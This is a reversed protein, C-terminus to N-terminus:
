KKIVKRIIKKGNSLSIEALYIGKGLYGTRLTVRNPDSAESSILEKGTVSFLTVSKLHHRSHITLRNSFPSPFIKVDTSSDLYGTAVLEGTTFLTVEPYSIVHDDYDEVKYPILKVVYTENEELTNDPYLYIQDYTDNIEGSFEVAPGNESERTFTFISPIDSATIPQGNTLRVAESFSVSITTAPHVEHSNYGPDFVLTPLADDWLGNLQIQRAIRETRTLTFQDYNFTLRDDYNGPAPPDFEVILDAKGGAPIFLPLTSVIDFEETHKHYSNIKIQHDANNTVTIIMERPGTQSTANGFHLSNRATFLNTEWSFKLARYTVVTDPLYLEFTLNGDMDTETASIPWASGWGVFNKSDWSRRYCGTMQAYITPDHQYNWVRTAVMNTEDISYEVAQSFQPSRLNGNDYITINGNALVRVDHQHSFGYPDNVIEFENNECYLGFRWLVEGTEYSIKTIEDLHRSSLLIDGNQDIDFANGHVYDIYFGTMNIDWTADTIEFHDWSRWQFFVNQNNDVEQIVLGVVTANPNGGPVVLSMDVTQPDYSMMLYHGNDMLLLDHMDVFYGNGMLLSDFVVYSSDMLYFKEEESSGPFNRAYALTGDQLKMLNTGADDMKRFFVPTGFNDCITLYNKYRFSSARPNQTIFIYDNNTPGYQTGVPAPFSFPLNNDSIQHDPYSGNPLSSVQNFDNMDSQYYDLWMQRNDQEKIRFSFSLEELNKNDRTRFTGSILVSVEEGFAFKREPRIILTRYDESFILHASIVGTTSGEIRIMGPQISAPDFAAAPKLIITQEPNIYESGPLPCVYQYLIGQAAICLPLFFLFTFWLKKVPRM